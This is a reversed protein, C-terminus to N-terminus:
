LYGGLPTAPLDVLSAASPFPSLPFPGAPTASARPHRPGLRPRFAWLKGPAWPCPVRACLAPRPRTAEPIPADAAGGLAGLTRKPGVLTKIRFHDPGGFRSSCM